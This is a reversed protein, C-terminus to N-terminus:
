RVDGKLFDVALSVYSAQEASLSIDAYVFNNLILYDYNIKNETKSELLSLATANNKVTEDISYRSMAEQFIEYYNRAFTALRESARMGVGSDAFGDTNFFKEQIVSLYSHTADVVNCYMQNGFAGHMKMKNFNQLLATMEVANSVIDQYNSRVATWVGSVVTFNVKGIGDETEVIMEAKHDVIHKGIKEVSLKIDKLYGDLKKADRKAIKDSFISEFNTEYFKSLSNVSSIIYDLSDMENAYDAMDYNIFESRYKRRFSSIEEEAENMDSEQDYVAENLYTQFSMSIDAPKAPWYTVGLVVGAVAICLIAFLIVIAKKNVKRRSKDKGM